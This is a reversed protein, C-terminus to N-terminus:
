SLLLQDDALEKGEKTRFMRLLDEITMKTREPGAVDLVVRGQHLMITGSGYDLAQRMSHTVMITTVELNDVIRATLGMVFVATAPDLAATHEDLLLVKTPGMTPMVLCLAQRQGGSLLDVRDDLRSELGLGFPRLREQAVRRLSGSLAFRM